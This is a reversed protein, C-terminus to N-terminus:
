RIWKVMGVEEQFDSQLPIVHDTINVSLKNCYLCNFDEANKRMSYAGHISCRFIDYEDLNTIAIITKEVKSFKMIRWHWNVALCNTNILCLQLQRQVM